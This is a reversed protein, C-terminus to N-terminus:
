LTPAPNTSASMLTSTDPQTALAAAIVGASATNTPPSASIAAPMVTALAPTPIPTPIPTSTSTAPTAVPVSVAEQAEVETEVGVGPGAVAGAGSGSAVPAAVEQEYEEIKQAAAREAREQRACEQEEETSGMREFVGLDRAWDERREGGHVHWKEVPEDRPNLQEVLQERCYRSVEFLIDCLVDPFARAKELHRRSKADDSQRTVINHACSALLFRYIPLHTLQFEAAQCCDTIDCTFDLRCLNQILIDSITNQLKTLMLTDATHYLPLIVLSLDLLQSRKLEFLQSPLKTTYLYDIIIEWHSLPVQPLHLIYAHGADVDRACSSSSSASVSCTPSSTTPTLPDLDKGNRNRDNNAALM